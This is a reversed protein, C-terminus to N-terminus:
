CFQPTAVAIVAACIVSPYECLDPRGASLLWSFERTHGSWMLLEKGKVVRIMVDGPPTIQKSRQNWAVSQYWPVAVIPSM